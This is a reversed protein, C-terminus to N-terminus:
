AVMRSIQCRPSLGRPKATSGISGHHAPSAHSVKGVIGIRQEFPRPRRAPL